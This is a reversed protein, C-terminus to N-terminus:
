TSASRPKRGRRKKEVTPAEQVAEARPRRGRRKSTSAAATELSEVGSPKPQTVEAIFPPEPQAPASGANNQSGDAAEVRFRLKPGTTRRFTLAVGRRAAAAQLRNRVTLRNDAADLQVEGYDGPAFDVLYRDNEVAIRARQGLPKADLARGEEQTLKRLTPM